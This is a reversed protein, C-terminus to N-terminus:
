HKGYLLQHMFPFPEIVKEILVCFLAIIMALISLTFFQLMDNVSHELQGAHPIDVFLFHSLYIGLSYKGLLILVSNLHKNRISSFLKVLFISALASLPMELWVRNGNGYFTQGYSFYGAGLLFLLLATGYIFNPFQRLWSRQQFFYGFVFLIFYMIPVRKIDFAFFLALATLSIWLIVNRKGFKDDVFRITTWLCSVAFLVNLFWFSSISSNWKWMNSFFLPVLLTWAISPLLLSSCKNGYFIILGKWSQISGKKEEQLSCTCGSLFFFLLMHFSYIINFIRNQISSEYNCQILHGIIVLLIAFGRLSDLYAIRQIM